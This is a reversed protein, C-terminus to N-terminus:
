CANRDLGLDRLQWSQFGRMAQHMHLERRAEDISYALDGATFGFLTRIRGFLGVTPQGPFRNAAVFVTDAM